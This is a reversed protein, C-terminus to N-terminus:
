ALNILIEGLAVNEYFGNKDIEQSKISREEVAFPCGFKRNEVSKFYPDVKRKYKPRELNACTVAIGCAQHPCQFNKQSSILVKEYAIDAQKANVIKGLDLSYAQLLSM